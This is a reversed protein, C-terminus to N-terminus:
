LCKARKLHLQLHTSHPENEQFPYMDPFLFDSSEPNYGYKNAVGYQPVMEDAATEKCNIPQHMDSPISQQRSIDMQYMPSSRVEYHMHGAASLDIDESLNGNTNQPINAYSRRHQNGFLVCNHDEFNTVYTNCYECQPIEINTLVINVNRVNIRNEGSHIRVHRSLSSRHAYAKDCFKCKYLRAVPRPCEPFELHDSPQLAIPDKDSKSSQKQEFSTNLESSGSDSSSSESTYLEINNIIGSGFGHQKTEISNSAGFVSDAKGYSFDTRKDYKPNNEAVKYKKADFNIACSQQNEVSFHSNGPISIPDTINNTNDTEPNNFINEDSNGSLNNTSFLLNELPDDCALTAFSFTETQETTNLTHIPNRTSYWVENTLSIGSYEIQSTDELHQDMRNMMANRQGFTQQFGPLLVQQALSMPISAPHGPNSADSHRSNQSRLIESPESSRQLNVSRYENEKVSPKSPFNFDSTAPNNQDHNSIDYWSYMEAASTEECDTQQHM